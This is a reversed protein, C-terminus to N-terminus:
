LSNFSCDGTKSSESERSFCYRSGLLSKNKFTLRGFSPGFELGFLLAM